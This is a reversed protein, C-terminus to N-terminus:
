QESDDPRTGPAAWSTPAAPQAPAPQSPTPQAPSYGPPAASAPPAYGQPYYPPTAYAPQVPYPQMPYRPAVVRGIHERYPDPLAPTGADRREVYSLLDLDLGERRMRADIYIIATATSQVVLAVSQLLLTLSQALLTIVVIGVIASPEPDGTPAIITTVGSALLSLPLSIVQSVAGFILSVVLLLGLTRWFRGRTLTWSRAIAGGITEQEIVIAAAVLLLKVALWWTIPIAALVAVVGLAIAVPGIAFGLGVLAGVVIAVVVLIATVLLVSYGILRGIVPRVQRWLAGLALKEAVAAHSVEAIVIAQVVVTLAGVALGLVIGAIATITISGAMIAEFDPSGPTVTDLRSFTVWAVLGVVVTLVLYAVSQAVLAFGLLVRPNQRLATFSRGLIAGFTLPHLPILGPRSAPTWAPYATV